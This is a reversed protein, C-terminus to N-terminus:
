CFPVTFGGASVTPNSNPHSTPVTGPVHERRGRMGLNGVIDVPIGQVDNAKPLTVRGCRM